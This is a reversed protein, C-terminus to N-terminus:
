GIGALLDCGPGDLMTWGGATRGREEASSIPGTALFSREAIRCRAGGEVMVSEIFGDLDSPASRWPATSSREFLEFARARGARVIALMKEDGLRRACFVAVDDLDVAAGFLAALSCGGGNASALRLVLNSPPELEM